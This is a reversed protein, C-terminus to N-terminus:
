LAKFFLKWGEDNLVKTADISCFKNKAISKAFGNKLADERKKADHDNQFREPFIDREYKISLKLLKEEQSPFLCKMPFDKASFGLNEQRDKAKAVVDMRKLNQNLLYGAEYAAVVLIDYHLDVSLNRSKVQEMESKTIQAACTHKVNLVRCLFNATLDGEFDHIDFILVDAFHRRFKERLVFSPHYFANDGQVIHVTNIFQERSSDLSSVDGRLVIDLFDGFAPIAVGGHRGPWKKLEPWHGAAEYIENYFSAIWEFYWRYAIVVSVDWSDHNNLARNLQRLGKADIRSLGEDSHLVNLNGKDHIAGLATTFENWPRANDCEKVFTDRLCVMNGPMYYPFQFKNKAYQLQAKRRQCQYKGSYVLSDYRVLDEMLDELDCQITTTGTKHPGPHLIFRPRKQQTRTNLRITQPEDQQMSNNYGATYSQHYTLAYFVTYAFLGSALLLIVLSKQYHNKKKM